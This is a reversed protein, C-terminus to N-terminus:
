RSLISSASIGQPTSVTVLAPSADMVPSLSLNLLIQEGPNVIGPEFAEPENAERDIYIGGLDWWRDAELDATQRYPLHAIIYQGGVSHYQVIVDWQGLDALRVEGSNLLLVQVTEGAATAQISLTSICTRAREVVRADLTHSAELLAEQSSLHTQALSLGAVLMLSILIVTALASDM